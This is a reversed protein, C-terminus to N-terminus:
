SKPPKKLSIKKYFNKKYFVTYIIIRVFHRTAQMNSNVSTRWVLKIISIIIRKRQKGKLIKRCEKFSHDTFSLFINTLSNAM